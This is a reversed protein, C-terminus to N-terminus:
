VVGGGFLTSMFHTNHCPRTQAEGVEATTLKKQQEDCRTKLTQSTSALEAKQKLEEQSPANLPRKPLACAAWQGPSLFLAGFM